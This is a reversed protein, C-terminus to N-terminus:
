PLQVLEVPELGNEVLVNKVIIAPSVQTDEKRAPQAQFIFILEGSQEKLRFKVASFEPHSTLVTEIKQKREEDAIGKFSYSFTQASCLNTIVVFFTLLLNRM